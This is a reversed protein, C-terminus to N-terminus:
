QLASPLRLLRLQTAKRWFDTSFSHRVQFPPSFRLCSLFLKAFLPTFCAPRGFVLLLLLLADFLSLRLFSVLLTYCSDASHVLLHFAVTSYPVLFTCVFM